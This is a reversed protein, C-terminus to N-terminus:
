ESKRQAKDRLPKIIRDATILAVTLRQVEVTLRDNQEGLSRLMKMYDAYLVFEGVPHEETEIKHWPMKALYRKPESM